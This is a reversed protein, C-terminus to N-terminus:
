GASDAQHLFRTFSRGGTPRVSFFFDTIDYLHTRALTQNSPTETPFLVSWGTLLKAAAAVKTLRVLCFLEM